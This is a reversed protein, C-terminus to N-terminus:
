STCGYFNPKGGNGVLVGINNMICQRGHNPLSYVFNFADYLNGCFPGSGPADNPGGNCLVDHGVVVNPSSNMNYLKDFMNRFSKDFAARTAVLYPDDVQEFSPSAACGYTVAAHLYQGPTLSGNVLVNPYATQDAWIQNILNTISTAGNRYADWGWKAKIGPVIAQDFTELVKEIFAAQVVKGQTPANQNSSQLGQFINIDRFYVPVTWIGGLISAKTLFVNLGPWQVFRGAGAYPAACQRMQEGYWNAIWTLASGQNGLPNGAKTAACWLFAKAIGTPGNDCAVYQVVATPTMNASNTIATNLTGCDLNGSQGYIKRLADRYAATGENYFVKNNLDLYATNQGLNYAQDLNAYATVEPAGFVNNCGLAPNTAGVQAKKVIGASAPSAPILVGGILTAAV